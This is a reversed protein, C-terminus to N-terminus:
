SCLSYKKGELADPSFHKVEGLTMIENEIQFEAKLCSLGLILLLMKPNSKM